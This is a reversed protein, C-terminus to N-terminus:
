RALAISLAVSATTSIAVALAAVVAFGLVRFIAGTV